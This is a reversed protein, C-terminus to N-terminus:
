ERESASAEADDLVDLRGRRMMAALIEGASALPGTSTAVTEWNEGGDSSKQIAIDALVERWNETIQNM